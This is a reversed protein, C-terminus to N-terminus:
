AVRRPGEAQAGARLRLENHVDRVGTVSDVIHEALRRASRNAVVGQLWVEGHEVRIEVDTADLMSDEAMRDAIDARIQDDSRTYGRPGRGRFGGFGMRMRPWAGYMPYAPREERERRRDGLSDEESLGSTAGLAVVIIGVIIGNWTGAINSAFHFVFPSAITWAGLVANVWSWGSEAGAERSAALIAIVVGVIISNSLAGPLPAYGFVWPSIILWLGALLNIGSAFTVTDTLRSRYTM